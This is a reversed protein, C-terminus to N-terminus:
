RKGNKVMGKKLFEKAVEPSPGIGKMPKKGVAMAQM